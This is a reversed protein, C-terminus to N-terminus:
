VFGTTFGQLLDAMSRTPKTQEAVIGRTACIRSPYFNELVFEERECLCTELVEYEMPEPVIAERPEVVEASLGIVLILVINM